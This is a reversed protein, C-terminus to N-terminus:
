VAAEAPCIEFRRVDDIGNLQQQWVTQVAHGLEGIFRAARAL